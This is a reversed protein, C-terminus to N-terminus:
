TSNARISQGRGDRCWGILFLNKYNRDLLIETYIYIYTDNKTIKCNPVWKRLILSGRVRYAWERISSFQHITTLRSIYTYIYVENMQIITQFILDTACIASPFTLHLMSMWPITVCAQQDSKSTRFTQHLTCVHARLWLNTQIILSDFM